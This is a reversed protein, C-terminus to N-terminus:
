AKEYTRVAHVDEFTLNQLSLVCSSPPDTIWVTGTQGEERHLNSPKTLFSMHTYICFLHQLFLRFYM